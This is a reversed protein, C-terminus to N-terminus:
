VFIREEEFLDSTCKCPRLIEREIKEYRGKRHVGERKGEQSFYLASFLISHFLPSPFITSACGPSWLNFICNELNLTCLHAYIGRMANEQAGVLFRTFFNREFSCLLILFFGNRWVYFWLGRSELSLFFNLKFFTIYICLNEASTTM